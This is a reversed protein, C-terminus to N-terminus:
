ASAKVNLQRLLRRAIGGSHLPRGRGDLLPRGEADRRERGDIYRAFRKRRSAIVRPDHEESGDMVVAIEDPRFGAATLVILAQEFVSLRKMARLLDFYVCALASEPHLPGRRAMWAQREGNELAHLYPLNEGGVDRAWSLIDVFTLHPSGKTGVPERLGILREVEPLTYSHQFWDDGPEGM